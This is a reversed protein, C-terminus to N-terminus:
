RHSAPIADLLRRFEPIRQRGVETASLDSAEARDERYAFLEEAGDGRRIYHFQQDFVSRMPGFAAPWDPEPRIVNSLEALLISGFPKTPNPSWFGALSTGPFPAGDLHALQALTAPLDRLTVADTVRVGRPVVAPYRILLPVRLLQTYLSNGHKNLGHDNLQEGHDSTIVIITNDLLQRNQLQTILRDVESDIYAIAADYRGKRDGPTRAFRRQFAGPASYPDHGDYYNLFAFFPRKQPQEAQWNLFANTILEASPRGYTRANFLRADFELSPDRIANWLDLASRSNLLNRVIPTHAIWSHLILQRAALHYDDYHVFGCALGTERTTYPLNAVFGATVYGRRRFEDALVPTRFNLPHEFDGELEEPYRGTFMTGHSKLTWPATSMAFDFTASNRALRELGPTTPRGYGYLSLNEARVTDLVILLVNPVNEPPAPLRSLAYREAVIPWAESAAAIVLLAIAGRVITRRMVSLWWGQRTTMARGIQLGVGAAVLACAIKHLQPFPLLLSFVGLGAFLPPVRRRLEMRSQVGALLAPVVGIAFFILAYSVPTMWFMQPGVMLLNNRVYRNALALLVQITGTALGFWVAVTLTEAFRGFASRSLETDSPVSRSAVRRSLLIVLGLSAAILLLLLVLLTRDLNM